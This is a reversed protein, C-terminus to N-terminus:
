VKKKRTFNRRKPKTEKLNLPQHTSSQKAREMAAHIQEPTPDGEEAM